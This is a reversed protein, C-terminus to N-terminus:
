CSTFYNKKLLEFLADSSIAKSQIVNECPRFHLITEGSLPDYELDIAQERGTFMLHTRSM